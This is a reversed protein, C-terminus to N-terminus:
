RLGAVIQATVNFAGNEWCFSAVRILISLIALRKELSKPNIILERVWIRIQINQIILVYIIHVHTNFM